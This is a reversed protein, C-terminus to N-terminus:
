RGRDYREKAAAITEDYVRMLMEYNAEPAYKEEYVRRAAEGMRMREDPDGVLRAVKDSLDRSDGATFHLGTRGDEVIEAVSGLRSAVVPLGTAFAEVITLPFGEYWESPVVLLAARRMARAVEDRELYGEYRLRGGSGASLGSVLGALPGEGIVTLSWEASTCARLLTEIGKEPSLRGVLLAERSQRHAALEEVTPRRGATTVTNPRVAIKDVPLGARVFIGRSFATLAIFRDVKREWTRLLRHIQTTAVAAATATTSDQYCRRPVAHLTSRGLCIECPRAARILYAGPCALRYNHLTHVVPLRAQACADLVSPTLLPFLNHVHVLDPNFREIAERVARRARLSYPARLAASAQSLAGGIAANDATLLEVVHGHETLLARETEVVRDEGGALKYHNHLVLIRM